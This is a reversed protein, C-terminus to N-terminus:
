TAVIALMCLAKPSCQTKGDNSKADIEDNPHNLPHLTFGIEQTSTILRCNDRSSHVDKHGDDIRNQRINEGHIFHNPYLVYHTIRDRENQQEKYDLFVIPNILYVIQLM